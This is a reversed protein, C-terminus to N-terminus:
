KVLGFTSVTIMAVAWGGFFAALQVLPLYTELATM